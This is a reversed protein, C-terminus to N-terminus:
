PLEWLWVRYWSAAALYRGDRSFTVAVVPSEARALPDAGLRTRDPIDWLRVSRDIESPKSKPCVCGGASAVTRGDPSFALGNVDDALRLKDLLKGGGDADWVEIADETGGSVVLKHDPSLAADHWNTGFGHGIPQHSDADFIRVTDSHDMTSGSSVLVTGDVSFEVSAAFFDFATVPAGLQGYGDTSWWRVTGDQSATVFVPKSPHYTCDFFLDDGRVRDVVKATTVDFVVIETQSNSTALLKGDPSFALCKQGGNPLTTVVEGSPVAVLSVEASNGFALLRGDPSFAVDLFRPVDLDDEGRNLSWVERIRAVDIPESRPPRTTSSSASTDGAGADGTGSGGWPWFSVLGVVGLVAVGAGVARRGWPGLRVKVPRRRKAEAEREDGSRRELLVLAVVLAGVVTWTGVRWWGGNVEVTNAAINGVIGLVVTLLLGVVAEGRRRM